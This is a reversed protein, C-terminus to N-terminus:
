ALTDLGRSLDYGIKVLALNNPWTPWGIEVWEWHLHGPKMWTLKIDQAARNALGLFVVCRLEAPLAHSLFEVGNQTDQGFQLVWLTLKEDQM